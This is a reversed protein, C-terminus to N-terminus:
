SVSEIAPDPTEDDTIGLLPFQCTAFHRIMNRVAMSKNGDYRANALTQVASIEVDGLAMPTNRFISENMLYAM